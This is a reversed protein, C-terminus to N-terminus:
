PRPHAAYLALTLDPSTQSSPSVDLVKELRFRDSFREVSQAALVIWGTRHGDELRQLLEERTGFQLPCADLTLVYRISEDNFIAWFDHRAAATEEMNELFMTDDCAGHARLTELLEFFPRNSGNRGSLREYYPMLTLLPTAITAALALLGAAPRMYAAVRARWRRADRAGVDRPIRPVLNFSLRALGDGALVYVLPLLYTIYRVLPVRIIFPLLLVSWMLVSVILRRGRSGAILVGACYTLLALGILVSVAGYSESWFGLRAARWVVDCTEFLRRFYELPSAVPVFAYSRSAGISMISVDTRAVYWLVPAYALLFAALAACLVPRRFASDKRSFMVWWATMGAVATATLPHTQVTLGALLGSSILLGARKSSYAECFAALTVTAFFPSLSNSWGYHSSVTILYFSVSAFMAAVLGARCSCTVRGLWYTAPVTLAGFIAAILRPLLIAPGFLQFVLAVLYAFLPGYYPDSGTLPLHKGVAIDLAWLVEIGEDEFRPVLMLRPLRIALAAGFLVTFGVLEAWHARLFSRVPFRIEHGVLQEALSRDDTGPRPELLSGLTM